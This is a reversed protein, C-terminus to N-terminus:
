KVKIVDEAYKTSSVYGGDFLDFIEEITCDGAIDDDTYNLHTVFVSTKVDYPPWYYRQDYDIRQKFKDLDFKGYRISGQFENPENTNDKILPNIDEKSCENELPGEGHRTLYSRTVYCVEIDTNVDLGEAIKIANIISQYSTTSSATVYPYMSENNEDLAIGQACEFIVTDYRNCVAEVIDEHHNLPKRLQERMFIYDEAFHEDLANFDPVYEKFKEWALCLDVGYETMRLPIYCERIQKLKDCIDQKCMIDSLYMTYDFLQNRKFAEYLGFGCSGHKNNGRIEEVTKNIFMDYPTVCKCPDCSIVTPSCGLYKTIQKYERRFFIPNVFFQSGILTDAGDFTGSGFHSFIHRTGDKLEVTHGRQCTGNVLINLVKHGQSVAQDVFYHTALGKGEDGYNSGVIIKINIPKNKVM